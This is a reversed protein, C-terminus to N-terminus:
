ITRARGTGRTINTVPCAQYCPTFQIGTMDVNTFQFCDIIRWVQVGDRGGGEVGAGKRSGGGPGEQGAGGLGEPGGGEEQVKM